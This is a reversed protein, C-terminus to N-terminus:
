SRAVPLILRVAFVGGTQREAAVSGGLAGALRQVLALGLGCHVGIDKRSSDGRWFCDFVQSIQEDTLSCGTNSITVEMGNDARRAAAWIRGGDNTYAAANDLLNSLIMSLCDPDCVCILDDPISCAFVIQRAAAHGAFPRWCSEVMEALPIQEQRFTVQRADLRALLLLNNAMAQMKQVIELCEGLVVRYEEGDRPRALTVEVSARLGALPTRLEHAIDAAFRRERQFSAELRALLDNLREKVPAIEKLTGATGVRATLDDARIAAIAAAMDNLPALSHRVVVTAVLFSLATVAGSAIWLLGRLFRLQGYLDTADRAVTLRLTQLKTGPHPNGEDGDSSQPVFRLGIARQSRDERGRGSTFVPSSLTDAIPSLTRGQLLPSQAVVTGDERWLQYYTAHRTDHFEPLQQISLGMEIENADQEVSAALLRATSELGADFQTWLASRITTYLILCLLALLLVMGSMIGTLLRTRLSAM